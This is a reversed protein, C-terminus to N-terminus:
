SYLGVRIKNCKDSILNQHKEFDSRVSDLDNQHNSYLDRIEKFHNEIFLIDNNIDEFGADKLYKIRNACSRQKMFAVNRQESFVSESIVLAEIELIIQEICQNRRQRDDESMTLAYTIFVAIIITVIDVLSASFFTAEKYNKVILLLAVCITAIISCSLPKHKSIYIIAKKIM